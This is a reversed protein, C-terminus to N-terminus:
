AELTSNFVIRHLEIVALLYPPILFLTIVAIIFFYLTILLEDKMGLFLKVTWTKVLYSEAQRRSNLTLHLLFGVSLCDRLIILSILFFFLLFPLIHIIEALFDSLEQM